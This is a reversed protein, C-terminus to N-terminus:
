TPIKRPTPGILSKSNSVMKKAMSSTSKPCCEEAMEGNAMPLYHKAKFTEHFILTKSFVISTSYM